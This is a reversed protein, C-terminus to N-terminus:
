CDDGVVTQFAMMIHLLWQEHTNRALSSLWAVAHLDEAARPPTGIPVKNMLGDIVLRIGPQQGTSGTSGAANCQM